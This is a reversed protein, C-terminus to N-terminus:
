ASPGAACRGYGNSAGSATVPLGSPNVLWFAGGENDVHAITYSGSTENYLARTLLNTVLQDKYRHTCVCVTLVCLDPTLGWVLLWLSTCRLLDKLFSLNAGSIAGRSPGVHATPVSLLLCPSPAV